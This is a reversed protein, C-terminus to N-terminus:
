FKVSLGALFNRGAQPYFGNMESAAGLFTYRYVWANSSYVEGFINRVTFTLSVNCCSSNKLEMGLRLDNVLYSPLSREEASTNDIFQKGVFKSIFAVHFINERESSPDDGEMDTKFVKKKKSYEYKLESGAIVSPSFSIDTNAYIVSDQGWTDWNDTFETYNIIKNQSFTANMKWSINKIPNIAAQLEIGRRYSQDINIRTYAGVDNIKGTLVLQNKYQMNYLNVSAKWKKGRYNYYLETDYMTEHEPRTLPTSQTFDDRNPEKNAVSFSGFVSHTSNINWYMGAKPNFFSLDVNQQVNELNQNYGLFSYDITRYQLDVYASIGRRFNYNIKTYVNMDKKEADNDYYKYGQYSNAAYQAWIIEGFHNGEYINYGGGLNLKLKGPNYNLSFITGYYDNDLWRRRIFDSTSITDNGIQIDDLGYDSFVDQTRYQEYYGAGKTYHLAINGTWNMAMRQNYFFQYHTQTYNDTENEYTYPNFTRNTGLSDKPVGGWAQYTHETGSFINLRLSNEKGFYAASTYFSKLNSTARDIYGDSSISSLRMDLSFKDNILGSGGALTHKWTNFSGFSNSLEGYAM